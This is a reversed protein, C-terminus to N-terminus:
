FRWRAAIPEPENQVAVARLAQEYHACFEGALADYAAATENLGVKDYAYAAAGYFAVGLSHTPAHITSSAQAIARAAAMTIPNDSARAAGHAEELIAQRVVPLKVRGDLWQRALQIAHLPRPDNPQRKEYIPWIIREAYDISWNCITIKSQTEILRMLSVIYPSRTNGLTKRLKAAAM